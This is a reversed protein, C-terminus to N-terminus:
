KGYFGISQDMHTKENFFHIDITLILHISAFKVVLSFTDDNDIGELRPINKRWLDLRKGRLQFM